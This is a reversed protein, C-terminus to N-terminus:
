AFSDRDVDAYSTLAIFMSRRWAGTCATTYSSATALRSHRVRVARVGIYVSSAGRAGEGGRKQAPIFVLAM